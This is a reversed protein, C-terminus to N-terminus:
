CKLSFAMGAKRHINGDIGGGGLLSMKAANVIADCRVNLIDSYVVSIKKSFNLNGYLNNTDLNNRNGYLNNADVNDFNIKRKGFLKAVKKPRGRGKPTECNNTVPGPNSEVDGDILLQSLKLHSLSYLELTTIAIHVHEANTARASVEAIISICSCCIVVNSLFHFLNQICKTVKMFLTRQKLKHFQTGREGGDLVFTADLYKCRGGLMFTDLYNCPILPGARIGKPPSPNRMLENRRAIKQFSACLIDSGHKVTWFSYSYAIIVAFLRMFHAFYVYLTALFSGYLVIQIVTLLVIFLMSDVWETKKYANAPLICRVKGSFRGIAARYAEISIM